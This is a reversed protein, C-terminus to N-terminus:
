NKGIKNTFPTVSPCASPRVSPFNFEARRKKYIIRYIKEELEQILPQSVRVSPRASKSIHSNQYCVNEAKNMIEKHLNVIYLGFIISKLNLKFHLTHYMQMSIHSLCPIRYKKINFLSQQLYLYIHQNLRSHRRRPLHWKWHWQTPLHTPPILSQM